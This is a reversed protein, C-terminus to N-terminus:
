LRPVNRADFIEQQHVQNEAVDMGIWVSSKENYHIGSFVDDFCNNYPESFEHERVM